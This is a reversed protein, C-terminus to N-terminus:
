LEKEYYGDVKVRINKFMIMQDPSLTETNGSAATAVIEVGDFNSLTGTMTFTVAAGEMGAKLETSTVSVGAIRNGDVDLPYITVQASLPTQNYGEATLTLSNITLDEIDKNWGDETTTYIIKSGDYLALPAFLEYKGVVGDYKKGLAFDKVNQRPVGPNDVRIEISQPIGKGATVKGLGAFEFWSYNAFDAPVYDPKTPSLVSNIKGDTSNYGVTFISSSFSQPAENERVATLTLGANFTLNYQEVPNTTQLCILPNVLGLNTNDNQLFKPIGDLRIPSIDMGEIEYMIEGTFETVELTGLAFDASFETTQGDAKLEGGLVSFNSSFVFKPNSYSFGDNSTFDIDRATYVAKAVGNSIALDDITWVGTSPEYSGNTADGHMGKPLLLRVNNYTGQKLSPTNFQVSFDLGSINVTEISVISKSVNDCAFTYDEGLPPIVFAGNVSYLTAYKSDLRPTSVIPAPVEVSNSTFSGSRDVAYYKKGNIEVVKIDSDEEIKIIDSLYVEGLNVPIVLDNVSIRSTTDIDDLNYDDDICSVALVGIGVSCLLVKFNM